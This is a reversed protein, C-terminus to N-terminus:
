AFFAEADVYRVGLARAFDRDSDMDGVMITHERALRHRQLLSVGLGPLPKRCFCGVPFAPHPCYVVEAVPLGLAEITRAFAAEAAERTLTGSAVGSQNSVFFLAYGEDVYRQLRERRGPLLEVDAPDRPFLEGSKTRRLTGDVDLLLGRGTFGPDARRVFPVEEVVSFGEDVHPAEFSAAWKAMAAPPPLNPDDKALEKLEEPGLLKGYRELIRLVVNAYAEEIPTALFRCRVPVGHAHAARILAFRSARTAYTNDLVVRREGSALLAALKPVLGDLDGGLLDRNLRAYGRELYRAVESSKGAGQVGMMVVVEAEEGPGEGAVLPRLGAPVIPPASLALAEPTAALSIKTALEARDKADFPVKLARLSSEVSARKTAGFLPIVPPGLDLLAALAAEHPPVGHRAAIPKIARNKLLNATKAHGGLPRHALFAAGIQAALAVLGDVAGSRDIVSLENQIARVPFHREAQRVEAISTNCLGLHEVKGERQLEALAALSEELPVKPDVAHLLLMWIREVGLAALSGEVMKRLHDRRGCPVWKGKPRALGVKTIVRVQDKPGSWSSLAKRVLGEGYHLDRDDLGYADATDLVRVGRDLAFHLVDLADAEAPRGETSLRLLGLALPIELAGLVGYPPTPANM